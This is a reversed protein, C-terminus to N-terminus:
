SRRAVRQLGGRLGRAEDNISALEAERRDIASRVGQSSTTALVSIQNTFTRHLTSRLDRDLGDGVRRWDEWWKRKAKEWQGVGWRVSAVATLAGVAMATNPELGVVGLLGDGNQVLWGMWGMWGVAAGGCVGGSMGLMTRQGALHLRATPYAIIQNRRSTIVSTLSTTTLEHHPSSQLQLLLNRLVNSHVVENDGLLAFSKKSLEQQLVALRGTQLLLKRELQPCWTQDMASAVLATIEDVRSVMRWWSFRAMVERMKVEAQRLAASVDNGRANCSAADGPAAPGLVDFEVRAAAEEVEDRLRSAQVSAKDLQAKINDVSAICATVADELRHLAFKIRLYKAPSEQPRASTGPQPEPASLAAQLLRTLASVNSGTYEDQFRQVATPSIANAQLLSMVAAARAPDALIVTPKPAHAPVRSLLAPLDIPQTPPARIILVANQPLPTSLLTELRTTLPNCLIIPIDAEFLQALTTPDISSPADTQRPPFPRLEVIEVPVAFRQFLSSPLSLRGDAFLPAPGHAHTIQMGGEKWRDKVVALQEESGLPDALLATVLDESGAWQDMGHVVLRVPRESGTSLDDFVQSLIREWTELPLQHQPRTVAAQRELAKPLVNKTKHWLTLPEQPV